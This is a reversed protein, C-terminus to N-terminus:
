HYTLGRELIFLILHPMRHHFIVIRRDVDLTVALGHSRLLVMPPPHSSIEEAFSLIISKMVLPLEVAATAGRRDRQPTTLWLRTANRAKSELLTFSGRHPVEVSMIESWSLAIRWEINEDWSCTSMVADVNSSDFFLDLPSPRSEIAPSM